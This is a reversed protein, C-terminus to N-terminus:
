VRYCEGGGAVHGRRQWLGLGQWIGRSGHCVVVWTVVGAVLRGARTVHGWGRGCSGVGQWMGGGRGCTEARGCSDVRGMHGKGKDCGGGRDYIGIGVVDGGGSGVLGLETVHGM